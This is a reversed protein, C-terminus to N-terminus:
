GPQGRHHQHNTTRIPQPLHYHHQPEFGSGALYQLGGAGAPTLEVAVLRATTSAQGDYQLHRGGDLRLERGKRESSGVRERQEKGHKGGPGRDHGPRVGADGNRASQSGGEGRKRPREGEEREREKRQYWTKALCICTSTNSSYHSSRLLM